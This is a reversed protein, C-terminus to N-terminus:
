NRINSSYLNQHLITCDVRGGAFKLENSGFTVSESWSEEAIGVPECLAVFEGSKVNVFGGRGLIVVDTGLGVEVLPEAAQQDFLLHPIVNSSPFAGKAPITPSVMNCIIHYFVANCLGFRRKMGQGRGASCRKM